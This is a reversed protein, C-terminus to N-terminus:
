ISNLISEYKTRMFGNYKKSMMVTDVLKKQVGEFFDVDPVAKGCVEM